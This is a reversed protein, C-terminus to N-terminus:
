WRIGTNIWCVPAYDGMLWPLLLTMIIIFFQHDVFPCVGRLSQPWHFHSFSVFLMWNIKKGRGRIWITRGNSKMERMRIAEEMSYMQCRQHEATANMKVYLIKKKEHIHIVKKQGRWKNNGMIKPQSYLKLQKSYPTIDLSKDVIISALHDPTSWECWYFRTHDYVCRKLIMLGQACVRKAM